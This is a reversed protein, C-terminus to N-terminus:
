ENSIFTASQPQNAYFRPPFEEMASIGMIADDFMVCLGSYTAIDALVEPSSIHGYAMSAIAFGIELYKESVHYPFGLEWSRARQMVIEAASNNLQTIGPISMVYPDASCISIFQRLYQALSEDDQQKLLLDPHVSTFKSVWKKEIIM